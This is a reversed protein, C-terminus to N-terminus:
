RTAVASCLIERSLDRGPPRINAAGAAHVRERSTVERVFRKIILRPEYLHDNDVRGEYVYRAADYVVWLVM